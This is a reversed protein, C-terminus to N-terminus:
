GGLQTSPLAIDLVPSTGTASPQALVVIAVRRNRSRHDPTDNPVLPRQDAYGAASLRGATVGHGLLFRLVTTARGASLEWNSPFRGGSIPVNDTHGEISLDNGVRHLAPAIAALVQEGQPRLDASGLDFLVKDTVVDIVLGREQRVYEVSGTLGRAQLSHKIQLQLSNLQEAVSTAQLASQREHALARKMDLADDPTQAQAQSGQLVGAGGDLVKAAGFSKSLGQHLEDFKKNDVESIAFLVIFLVMLLTIMDAYTLLWREHNVHEEEQDSPRRRRSATM